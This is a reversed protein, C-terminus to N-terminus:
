DLGSNFVAHFLIWGFDREVVQKKQIVKSFFMICIWIAGSTMYVEMKM